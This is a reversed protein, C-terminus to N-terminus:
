FDEAGGVPDICELGITVSYASKAGQAFPVHDCEVGERGIEVTRNADAYYVTIYSHDVDMSSDAMAFGAASAIAFLVAGTQFRRFKM